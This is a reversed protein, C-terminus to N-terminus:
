PLVVFHARRNRAWAEENHGPDLPREKGYSVTELLKEDVGLNVLYNKAADARKQGLILNYESTGREDCHGEIRVRKGPNAKFWELNDKLIEADQPRIDYKDFDFHIDKLVYTPKPAPLSPVTPAPAPAIPKEVQSPTPAPKPVAVLPVEKPPTPEPLTITPKEEPKAIRIEPPPAPPAKEGVVAQRFCGCGGLFFSVSFIVIFTILSRKM